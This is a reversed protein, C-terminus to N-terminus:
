RKSRLKMHLPRDPMHFRTITPTFPTDSSRRHRRGPRSNQRPNWLAESTTVGDDGSESPDSFEIVEPLSAIHVHQPPIDPTYPPQTAFGELEPLPTTPHTIPTTTTKKQRRPKKPRSDLEERAKRLAMLENGTLVRAKSLHKRDPRTTYSKKKRLGECVKERIEKEAMSFLAVHSITKLIGKIKKISVGKDILNNAAHLQSRIDRSTKPTRFIQLSQSTSPLPNHNDTQPKLKSYVRRPNLPVIGTTAFAQEINRRTIGDLRAKHLLPIFVSKKIGEETDCSYDDVQRGYFNQLPGFIGVDLPQLLHTSHSPLCFLIINRQKCFRAFEWTIHSGHGDLILLRPLPGVSSATCPDFLETVWKLAVADDTWGNPSFSFRYDAMTSTLNTYWGKYQARGKNMVMPPLAFGAACITEVVTVMERTGEHTVRPNKRGRRCLVKARSAIGMLFGKEDMNFIQFPKLNHQRIISSLKSFYDKLLRPCSAHARQRDLKTSFKTALDPHRDLFRTIWNKGVRIRKNGTRKEYLYLAMDKVMDLRPPFGRDDQEKCWAVIAKEEMVTILQNDVQALQHSTREGTYRYYLTSKPVDFAEAAARISEQKGENLSKIAASIRIERGTDNRKKVRPM